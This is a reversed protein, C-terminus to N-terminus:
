WEKDRVVKRKPREEVPPCDCSAKAIMAELTREVMELRKVIALYETRTAFYNPAAM